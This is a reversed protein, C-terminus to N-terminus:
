LDLVLTKSLSGSCCIMISRNAAKEGEDLYDDRHDPIGDVVDTLCTGCVGASCAYQVPVANDLLVDLITKGAAVELRRGSRNLVVEFGGATAAESSAAFREVHLQERPLADGAALFADIMGAPGCCYCHAGLPAASLIARLDFRNAPNASFNLEPPLDDEALAELEATFAAHASSRAAYYMKWPRGLASLRRAMSLMPTIGIGGAILVSFPSDEVLPFDNAPKSIRLVDGVRPVAHMWASGGRGDTERQVAIVYRHTEGPANMLSYSRVMEHPLHLDIHAGATFAPLASGDAPKLVYSVIGEAELRIQRIRVDLLVPTATSM